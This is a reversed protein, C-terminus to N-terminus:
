FIDSPQSFLFVHDLKMCAILLAKTVVFCVPGGFIQITKSSVLSKLSETFWNLPFLVKRTTTRGGCQYVHTPIFYMPSREWHDAEQMEPSKVSGLLQKESTKGNVFSLVPDYDGGHM